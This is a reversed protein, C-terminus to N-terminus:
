AAAMMARIQRWGDGGAYEKLTWQTWALNALWQTRECRDALRPRELDDLTTSAIPRAIGEGLVIVPLGAMVADFCANSSSVIMVRSREMCDALGDKDQSFETGYIPKADRWTAKPRYIIPWDVLRKIDDVLNQVWATADFVGGWRMAKASSGAILVHDGRPNWQAEKRRMVARAEQWRVPSHTATAVYELPQLGNIAVRWYRQLNANLARVYGKDFLAVPIGAERYMKFWDVTKVGVLCCLDCDM